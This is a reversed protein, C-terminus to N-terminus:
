LLEIGASFSLHAPRPQPAACLPKQQVQTVSLGVHLSEAAFVKHLRSLSVEPPWVCVCVCVCRFYFNFWLLLFQM